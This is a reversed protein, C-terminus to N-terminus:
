TERRGLSPSTSISAIATPQGAFSRLLDFLATTAEDGRGQNELVALLQHVLATGPLSARAERAAQLAYVLDKQQHRIAFGPTHDGAVAKPGYNTLSWSGGAGGGILEICDDLNLGAKEAFALAEAMSLLTLAVAIQNAMKMTQGAGVPGVLKAKKAYASWYPQAREFDREEGGCFLTLTGQRAGVSGGTVPADVFRLGAANAMEAIRIADKPAITSHDVILAGEKANRFISRVIEEVDNSDSVCLFILSAQDALEEISNAVRAVDALAEAKARTRNWVVLDFGHNALHRAMPSGMTGLGIFGVTERQEM